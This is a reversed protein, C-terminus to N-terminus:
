AVSAPLIVATSPELSRRAPNSRELDDAFAVPLEEVLDDRRTRPLSSTTRSSPEVKGATRRPASDRRPRLRRHRTRRRLRRDPATTRPPALHLAQRLTRAPASPRTRRAGPRRPRANRLRRTPTRDRRPRRRQARPQAAARRDPPPLDTGAGRRNRARTG